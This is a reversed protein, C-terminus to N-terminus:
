KSAGTQPVVANGCEPCVGSVNGTLDYGCSNCLGRRSQSLRRRWRWIATAPLLATLLTWFAWPAYLAHVTYAVPPPPAGPGAIDANPLAPRVPRVEIAVGPWHTAAAAWPELADEDAAFWFAPNLRRYYISKEYLYLLRLSGRRSDAEYVRGADFTGPSGDKQTQTGRRDARFIMLSDVRWYSGVWLVITAACLLLSLVTLFNLLWRGLRRM